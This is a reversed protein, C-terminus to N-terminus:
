QYRNFIKNNIWTAVDERNAEMCFSVVLTVFFSAGFSLMVLHQCVLYVLALIITRVWFTREEWSLRDIFSKREEKESM